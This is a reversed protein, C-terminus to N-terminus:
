GKKLHRYLTARSMGHRRAIQEAPEDSNLYDKIIAGRRGEDVGSGNKRIYPRDGGCSRRVEEEIKPLLGDLREMAETPLELRSIVAILIRQAIEHVIDSM